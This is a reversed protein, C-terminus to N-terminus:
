ELGLRRILSLYRPDSRIGDFSEDMRLILPGFEQRSVSRELWEFGKDNEGLFSHLSAILYADSGPRDMGAELDPLLRRVLEKEKKFYAIGAELAPAAFPFMDGILETAIKAERRMEDFRKMLGYLEFMLFHVEAYSPDLEATKKCIELAKGYDRTAQYCRAHNLNIIQSFPDLQLAKNIEDFAEDLRMQSRLVISYWHHASAYSPKLEIARRFEDEAERPKYLLGLGRSAHAEALSEDLELARKSARNAKERNAITDSTWINSLIEYGDALGAYGLAFRPDEEVAQEFYKVAKKMDDPHRKNWHYRGRLYLAYADTNETPKKDIRDIEPALIKVRLADAVQKAIDTQVAFVDDLNRDYSRAWVHKDSSVDILQTTVRIRNGAKRFSGELISGAELEQGIEKVKKTSGRYGIVSTRSIVSLGSVGSLTSIVEETIGDAFYSDNPDPSMNTFPLVAIRQADLKALPVWATKEWPMIMKFIETPEAVNKLSRSGLSSLHFTLRGRSTIMSKALSASEVMM